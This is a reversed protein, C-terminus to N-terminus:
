CFTKGGVQRGRIWMFPKDLPFTYPHEHDNVFFQHSYEDCAYCLRQIPQRELLARQDAFGRLQLQYPWVHETFDRTPIRRPRAEHKLVDLGQGTLKKALWVGTYVYVVV